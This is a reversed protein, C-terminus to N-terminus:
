PNDGCLPCPTDTPEEMSLCCVCRGTYDPSGKAYTICECAPCTAVAEEACVPCKGDAQGNDCHNCPDGYDDGLRCANCLAKATEAAKLRAFEVNFWRGGAECKKCSSKTRDEMDMYHGPSDWVWGKDRCEKCAWPSVPEATEPSLPAALGFEETIANSSGVAGLNRPAGHRVVQKDCLDRCYEAVLRAIRLGVDHAMLIADMGLIKGDVPKRKDGEQAVIQSLDISEPLNM